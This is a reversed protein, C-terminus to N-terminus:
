IALSGDDNLVARRVDYESLPQQEEALAKVAQVAAADLLGLAAMTDLLMRVTSSSADLGDRKLWALQRAIGPQYTKLPHEAPLDAVAFSELAQLFTEGEMIGLANVIGRETVFTERLTVVPPLADAIGQWDPIMAALAPNAAFAARIAETSM